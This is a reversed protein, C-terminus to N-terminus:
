ASARGLARDDCLTGVGCPPPAATIAAVIADTTMDTPRKPAAASVTNDVIKADALYYLPLLLAAALHGSGALQLLCWGVLLGIPLSGVDGLFLKAVPRNFPAFGIMAGCLALAALAADPPLQGYFGFLALAATVPIVEAVTIWDLGDMFNVLNVFWLGGILLLIREPWVPLIPILRFDVPLSALVIGVAIAQL